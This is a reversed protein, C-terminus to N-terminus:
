KKRFICKSKINKLITPLSNWTQAEKYKISFKGYNTEQLHPIKGTFQIM